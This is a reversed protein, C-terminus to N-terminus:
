AARQRALAREIPEALAGLAAAAAAAAEASPFYVTVGARRRRPRKEGTEADGRREDTTRVADLTQLSLRVPVGAAEALQRLKTKHHRQRHRTDVFRARGNGGLDLPQGCGCGCEGRAVRELVEFEIRQRLADLATAHRADTM